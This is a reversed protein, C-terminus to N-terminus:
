IDTMLRKCCSFEKESVANATISRTEFFCIRHDTRIFPFTTRIAVFSMSVSSATPCPVYHFVLPWVFLCVPRRSICTLEAPPFLFFFAKCFLDTNKWCQFLFRKFVHCCFLFLFLHLQVANQKKKWIPRYAKLSLVQDRYKLWM